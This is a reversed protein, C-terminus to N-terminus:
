YGAAALETGFYAEWGEEEASSFGNNPHYVGRKFEEQAKARIEMVERVKDKVEGMTPNERGWGDNGHGGMIQITPWHCQLFDQGILEYGRVSWDSMDLTIAWRDAPTNRLYSVTDKIGSVNQNNINM